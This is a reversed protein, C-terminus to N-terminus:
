NNEYMEGQKEITQVLSIGNEAADLGKRILDGLMENRSCQPYETNQLASLRAYLEPSVSITFRRSEKEMLDGKTQNLPESCRKM